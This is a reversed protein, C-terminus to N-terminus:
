VTLFYSLHWMRLFITRCITKKAILIATKICRRIYFPDTLNREKYSYLPVYFPLIDPATELLKHWLCLLFTTKGIGGDGLLLINKLEGYDSLLEGGETEGM